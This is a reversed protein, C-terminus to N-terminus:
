EAPFVLVHDAEVTFPLIDGPKPLSKASARALL